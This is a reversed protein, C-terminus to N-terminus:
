SRGSHVHGFRHPESAVAPPVMLREREIARSAGASTTASRRPVFAAAAAAGAPGPALEPQDIWDVGFKPERLSSSPETDHVPGSQHMAMPPLKVPDGNLSIQFPVEHDSRDNEM